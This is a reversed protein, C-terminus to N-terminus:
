KQFIDNGTCVWKERVTNVDDEEDDGPRRGGSIASVIASRWIGEKTAEGLKSM